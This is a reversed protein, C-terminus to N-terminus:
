LALSAILFCKSGKNFSTAGLLAVYSSLETWLLGLSASAREVRCSLESVSPWIGKVTGTKGFLCSVEIECSLSTWLAKFLAWDETVWSIATGAWRLVGNVMSLLVFSAILLFKPGKNCSAAGLSAM